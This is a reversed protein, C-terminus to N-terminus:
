RRRVLCGEDDLLVRGAGVLYAVVEVVASPEFTGAFAAAVEDPRCAGPHERVFAEVALVPGPRARCGPLGTM